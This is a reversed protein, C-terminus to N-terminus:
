ISFELIFNVVFAGQKWMYNQPCEKIEYGDILLENPKHSDTVHNLIDLSIINGYSCEHVCLFFNCHGGDQGRISALRDGHRSRSNSSM